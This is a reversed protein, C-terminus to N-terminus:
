RIADRSTRALLHPISARLRFRSSNRPQASRMRGLNAWRSIGGRNTCAGPRVTPGISSGEWGQDGDWKAMPAGGPRSVGFRHAVQGPCVLNSDRAIFSRVLHFRDRVLVRVFAEVEQIREQIGDIYNGIPV